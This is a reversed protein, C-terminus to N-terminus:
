HGEKDSDAGAAMAMLGDSKHLKGNDDVIIADIGPLSNILALGKKVGMVFVSTSLADTTTAEDGLITVSTVKRASDGTKPNIIHHYRVGDQIFFREYDGSTSVAVNMLPLVAVVKKEDRPDRIGVVWPQGFRDGLIRSDGGASVEAQRIGHRKLINIGRDVAYGKAIGGLDVYVGKHLYHISDNKPNLVLYRYNILKVDAEITAENPHIKKRFNYYRGVSAYTVDFAGHTMRSFKLSDDVLDYFEKGVIVPAKWANRNMKSLISTKISPSMTDDIHQMEDMVAAIDACAESQNKHWLEVHVDTGMIAETDHWWTGGHETKGATCQWKSAAALASLSTLSLLVLVCLLRVM